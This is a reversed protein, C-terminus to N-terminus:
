LAKAYLRAMVKSSWWTHNQFQQANGVAFARRLCELCGPEDGRDMAVEAEALFTLYEVTQAKMTRGEARAQRILGLGGDVDGGLPPLVRGLRNRFGALPFNAGAAEAMAIATGAFERAGALNGQMLRYWASLHQYVGAEAPRATTLRSEMRRLYQAALEANDSSL